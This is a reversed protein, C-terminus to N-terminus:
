HVRRCSYCVRIVSLIRKKLIGNGTPIGFRGLFTMCLPTDEKIVDYAIAMGSSTIHIGGHGDECPYLVENKGIHYSYLNLRSCVDLSDYVPSIASHTNTGTIILVKMSGSTYTIMQMVEDLGVCIVCQISKGDKCIILTASDENRSHEYVKYGDCNYLLEKDVVDVM